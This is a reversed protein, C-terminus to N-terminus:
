SRVTCHCTRPTRKTFIQVKTTFICIKSPSIAAWNYNQLFSMQWTLPCLLCTNLCWRSDVQSCAQTCTNVQAQQPEFEHIWCKYHPNMGDVNWHSQFSLCFYNVHVAATIDVESRFLSILEAEPLSFIVMFSVKILFVVPEFLGSNDKM